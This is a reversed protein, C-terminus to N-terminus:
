RRPGGKPFVGHHTRAYKDLFEWDSLLVGHRARVQYPFEMVRTRTNSVLVLVGHRAHACRAYQDLLARDSLNANCSNRGNRSNTERHSNRTVTNM